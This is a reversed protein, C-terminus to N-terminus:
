KGRDGAAASQDFPSSDLPSRMQRDWLARETWGETRMRIWLREIVHDRERSVHVAWYQRPWRNGGMNHGNIFPRKRPRQWRRDKRLWVGKDEEWRKRNKLIM